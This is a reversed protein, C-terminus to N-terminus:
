IKAENTRKTKITTPQAADCYRTIHIAKANVVCVRLGKADSTSEPVVIRM